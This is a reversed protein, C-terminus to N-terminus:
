EGGIGIPHGVGELYEGLIEPRALVFLGADHAEAARQLHDALRAIQRQLRRRLRPSNGLGLLLALRDLRLALRQRRFVLRQDLVREGAGGAMHRHRRRRLAVAALVAATMAPVPRSGARTAWGASTAKM